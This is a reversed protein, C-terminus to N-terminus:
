PDASRRTAALLALYRAAVSQWSYDEEVLARGQQALRVRLAEDRLAEVVLGALEEVSGTLAHTRHQVAIGDVSLPTAVVPLGHALAELIKNKLGAGLTLASVFVSARQYYPALDDVYGTVTVTPSALARLVPPPANGVLWVRAAPLSQQVRPLIDQVLRLAADTNPAYEFNGVFLLTYPEREAVVLPPLRVGNPIIHLNLTPDAARLADADPQALVTVAAYPAFMFAEYRRAIWARLQHILSPTQAQVRQLYLAFSEYPTIVAPQAALAAAVEYVQVGGFVWVADYPHAALQRQTETFLRPLWADGAVRPFRRSRLALRWLYQLPTRRTDAILTISRYHQQYHPINQQEAALTADNDALAILDVAIGQAALLPVVNGPILRDGLHLPYPPCRSILLLSRITM